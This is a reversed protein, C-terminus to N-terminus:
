FQSWINAMSIIYLVVFLGVGFTVTVVRWFVRSTALFLRYGAFALVTLIAVKLFLMDRTIIAAEWETM